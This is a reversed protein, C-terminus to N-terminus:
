KNITPPIKEQEELSYEFIELTPGNEFGPLQLHIGRINADELGILENVWNGKLNREPFVPKCDFVEIYFNALREWNQAVINTHVFKIRASM